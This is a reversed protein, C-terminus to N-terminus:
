KKIVVDSKGEMHEETMTEEVNQVGRHIKDGWLYAIGFAALIVGVVALPIILM